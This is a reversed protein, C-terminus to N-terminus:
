EEKTTNIVSENRSTDSTETNNVSENGGQHKSTDEKYKDDDNTNKMDKVNEISDDGNSHSTDDKDTHSTDTTEPNDDNEKNWLSKTGPIFPPEHPPLCQVQKERQQTCFLYIM